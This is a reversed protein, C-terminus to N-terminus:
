PAAGEVGEPLIVEATIRIRTGVPFERAAAYVAENAILGSKGGWYRGHSLEVNEGSTWEVRRREMTLVRDPMSHRVCRWVRNRDAAEDRERKNAYEYFTYERCGPEACRLTVTPKSRAM